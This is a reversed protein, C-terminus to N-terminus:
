FCTPLYLKASYIGDNFVIKPNVLPLILLKLPYEMITTNMRM